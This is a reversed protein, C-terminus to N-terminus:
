SEVIAAYTNGALDCLVQTASPRADANWAHCANIIAALPPVLGDPRGPPQQQVVIRAAVQQANACDHYPLQRSFLELLLCGVAWVDAKETLPLTPDYAEPAM